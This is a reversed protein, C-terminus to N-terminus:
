SRGEERTMRGRARAAQTDRRRRAAVLGAALGGLLASAPASACAVSSAPGSLPLCVEVARCVPEAEAAVEGEADVVRAGLCVEHDGDPFTRDVALPRGGEALGATVWGTGVGDVRVETQVLGVGEGSPSVEGRLLPDAVPDACRRHVALGDLRVADPAPVGAAAPSVDFVDYVDGFPTGLDVVNRGPAPPALPVLQVALPDLTRVEFRVARNQGDTWTGEVAPAACGPDGDAFWLTLVGDPALAGTTDVPLLGGVVPVECVVTAPAQFARDAFAVSWWM